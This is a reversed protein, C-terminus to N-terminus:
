KPSAYKSLLEEIPVGAGELCQAYLRDLEERVKPSNEIIWDELEDESMHMLVATPQGRKTIVVPKGEGASRVLESTKNKLDAISAFRVVIM